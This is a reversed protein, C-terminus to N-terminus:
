QPTWTYDSHVKLPIAGEELENVQWGRYGGTAPWRERIVAYRTRGIRVCYDHQGWPISAFQPDPALVEVPLDTVIYLDYSDDEVASPGRPVAPVELDEPLGAPRLFLLKQQLAEPHLMAVIEGVTGTGVLEGDRIMVLPDDLEFTLSAYVEEASLGQGEERYRDLPVHGRLQVVMPLVGEFAWVPPDLPDQAPTSAPWLSGILLMVALLRPM